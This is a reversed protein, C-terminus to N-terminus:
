QQIRKSTICPRRNIKETLYIKTCTINRPDVVNYQHDGWKEWPTKERPNMMLLITKSIKIQSIETSLLKSDKRERIMSRKRRIRGLNTCLIKEREKSM